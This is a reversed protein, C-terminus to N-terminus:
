RGSAKEIPGRAIQYKQYPAAAVIVAVCVSAWSSSNKSNSGVSGRADYM